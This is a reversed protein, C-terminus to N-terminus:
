SRRVLVMRLTSGGDPLADFIATGGYREALAKAAMAGAVAAYGGPRHYPAEEDFYNRLLGPALPVETQSVEIVIWGSGSAGAAGKVLVTPREVHEVLPLTALLAASLGAHLDHANVGISSLDDRIQARLTCANLRCEPAFGEIVEDAITSIARDRGPPPPVNLILDLADSLRSARWAHVKIMDLVQRTIGPAAGSAADTCTRIRALHDAVLHRVAM